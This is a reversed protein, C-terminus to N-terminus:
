HIATVVRDACEIAYNIGRDYPYTHHTSIWYMGPKSTKIEPPSYGVQVIPQANRQRFLEASVIDSRSFDPFMDVLADIFQALTTSSDQTFLTDTEDLYRSLYIVHHGGYTDPSVWCTHSIIGGFPRSSDGVNIWYLPIPNERVVLVACIAAKYRYSLFRAREQSDWVQLKAMADSAMTSIVEDFTQNNISWGDHHNHCELVPTSTLITGGMKRIKEALIDALVGFSGNIYALTEKRSSQRSKGRTKLKGWLWILSIDDSDNGFKLRFLPDWIVDWAKSFGYRYFWRKASVKEARGQTMLFGIILTSLIFQIKGRLGLPQFTMLSAPTGFSFLKGSTYYGMSSPIWQVDDLMGLEACLEWLSLDSTFAHHYYHEIRTDAIPFTALQGGVTPSSEFVTVSHGLNALRYAAVLGAVGAGIIGIRKSALKM